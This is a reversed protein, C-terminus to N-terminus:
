SSPVKDGTQWNNQTGVEYEHSKCLERNALAINVDIDDDPNLTVNFGMQLLHGHIARALSSKGTKPPGEIIIKIKVM